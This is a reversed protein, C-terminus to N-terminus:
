DVVCGVKIAWEEMEFRRYVIIIYLVDFLAVGSVELYFLDIVLLRFTDILDNIFIHFFIIVSINFKHYRIRMRLVLSKSRLGCMLPNSGDLKLFM